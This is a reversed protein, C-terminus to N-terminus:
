YSINIADVIVHGSLDAADILDWLRLNIEPFYDEDSDTYSVSIHFDTTVHLDDKTCPKNSLFWSQIAHRAPEDKVGVFDYGSVMYSYGNFPDIFNTWVLNHNITSLSDCIWGRREHYTRFLEETQSEGDRETIEKFPGYEKVLNSLESTCKQIHNFDIVELLTKRIEEDSDSESIEIAWM